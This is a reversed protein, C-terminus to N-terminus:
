SSAIRAKIKRNGFQTFIPIKSKGNLVLERLFWSGKFINVSVRKTTTATTYYYYYYYYYYVIGGRGNTIYCKM